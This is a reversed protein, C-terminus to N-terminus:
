GRYDRLVFNDIEGGNITATAIDRAIQLSSYRYNPGHPIVNSTDEWDLGIDQGDKLATYINTDPDYIISWTADNGEIDVDEVITWTGGHREAIVAEHASIFLSVGTFAQRDWAIMAGCGVEPVSPDGQVNHVDFDVRMYDSNTPHLFDIQALDGSGSFVVHGNSIGLDGNTGLERGLWSWNPGLNARNFDDTYIRDEPPALEAALYGWPMVDGAAVAADATATNYSTDSVSATTSFHGETPSNATAEMGLIGLTRSPSTKNLIRVLWREGQRITFGGPVTVEILDLTTTVFSTIDEHLMRTLSRDPEERFLQFWVQGGALATVARLYLGVLNVFRSQTVYIYSGVANNVPVTYVTGSSNLGGADHTHATGATQAGTSGFILLTGLLIHPYVVESAPYPSVWPPQPASLQALATVQSSDANEQKTEIAGRFGYLTDEFLSM